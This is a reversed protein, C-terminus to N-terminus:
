YHNSTSTYATLIGDKFSFQQMTTRVRDSGFYFPIFGKGTIHRRRYMLVEEGKSNYSIGNPNGLEEIIDAKTTEGVKYKQTQAAKEKPTPEAGGCGSLVVLSLAIAISGFIKTKM